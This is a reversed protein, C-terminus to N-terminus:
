NLLSRISMVVRPSIISRSIASIGRISLSIEDCICDLGAKELKNSEFLNLETTIKARPVESLAPCKKFYRMSVLNPRGHAKAEGDAAVM